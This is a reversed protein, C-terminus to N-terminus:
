RHARAIVCTESDLRAFTQARLYIEGSELGQIEVLGGPCDQVDTHLDRERWGDGNFHLLLSGSNDIRGAAYVDGASTGWLDRIVGPTENVDEVKWREPEDWAEGGDFRWIYDTTECIPGDDHKTHLMPPPAKQTGEECDEEAAIAGAVFVNEEDAVWVARFEMEGVGEPLEALVSTWGDGDRRALFPEHLDGSEDRGAVYLVTEGGSGTGSISRINQGPSAFPPSIDEGQEGDWTHVETDRGAMYIDEPGNAWIYSLSTGPDYVERWEEGDFHWLRRGAVFIDSPSAAWIRGAQAALDKKEAEWSEGDFRAIDDAVIRSGVIDENSFAWFGWLGDGGFSTTVTEWLLIGEEHPIAASVFVSFEFTDVDGHVELVWERAPTTEGRDLPGDYAYYPQATGTFTGTGAYEAATSVTVSGPEETPATVSPEEHFFVRIGDPHPTEGDATGLPQYMHNEVTVDFSFTGPDGGTGETFSVNESALTVYTDQGGATLAAMGPSAGGDVAECSISGASVSATCSIDALASPASVPSPSPEEPESPGPEDCSATLLLAVSLALWRVAAPRGEARSGIGGGPRRNLM